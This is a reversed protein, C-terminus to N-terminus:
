KDWHAIIDKHFMAITLFGWSQSIQHKKIMYINNLIINM